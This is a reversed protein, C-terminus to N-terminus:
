ILQMLKFTNSSQQIKRATNSFRNQLKPIFMVYWEKILIFRSFATM